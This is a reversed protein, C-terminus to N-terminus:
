PGDYGGADASPRGMPDNCRFVSREPTTFLIGRNLDDSTAAAPRGTGYTVLIVSSLIGVGLTAAGGAAVLDVRAM